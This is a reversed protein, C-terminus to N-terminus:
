KLQRRWRWIGAAAALALVGAVGAGGGGGGGADSRARVEVTRKAPASTNGSSDTAVYTVSYEGVVATDVPNDVVIAASLDGDVEDTAVAGPDQYAEGVTLTMRADGLLTVTPPHEDGRGLAGRGDNLFVEIGGTGAVIVDPRDDVSVRGIAAARAGPAVFQEAALLFVASSAGNNAYVQHGGSANIAVIDLDGDLDVDVALVALTAAAGLEAAPFFTPVAGGQNLLVANGLTATPDSSDRGLVLDPRGNADLDAVALSTAAGTPLRAASKYAGGANAYLAADGDGRAVVIEPLADGAFDALVIARADSADLTAHVAFSGAGTNRYVAVGGAGAIVADAAGDGDIDGVAVARSEVAEGGLPVATFTLDGGNLWLADATGAAHAVAVDLDGDGDVDALAVANAPQAPGIAIPMAALVSKAEHAPDPVALHVGVGGGGAVVVDEDGDGDVDGVATARVDAADIKQAAGSAIREALQLTVRAADNDENQDIPVPDAIAVEARAAVDGARTGTAPLTVTASAGGALPGLRCDLRAPNASSDLRCGAASPPEFAVPADAALEVALDVNGVDVTPAANRVTFTLTAPTGLPAPNPTVAAEVALDARDAGIVAITFPSRLAARGDSVELAIRYDRAEVGLPPVGALRGTVPDLALGPPLTEARFSLPEDEPDEFLPALELEFPLNETATQKPVPGGRPADNVPTVDITVVVTNSEATGDTVRAEVTLTGHFDDAPVVRTGNGALRFPADPAPPSLIVELEDAPDPDRANLRAPTIELPTDEDTRLRPPPTPITPPDNRGEVRLVFADAASGGENAATVTVTYTTIPGSSADDNDPTGAITGTTRDIALSPPLGAASFSLADGDPDSFFPSADFSYPSGETATQPDPAIEREVVPPRDPRIVRLTFSGSAAGTGDAATVTVAFPSAAIDADSPTGAITGTARDIALSAPLGSASFALPDGDPDDFFDGAALRYPSGATATQSDIPRELEPPRNARTIRLVFADSAALEGDSATVTVTFPSGDADPDRPTGAIQGTAGDLRLSAPLGAASFRLPDGDPDTFFRAVAFAYPSGVVADQPDPEIATAVLPAGNANAVQIAFTQMASLAGRSATLTVSHAGADTPGPIGSITRAGDFSLWAPLVPAAYRIPGGDDDDEDDDDNGGGRVVAEMLYTYREGEVAATPPASAFELSPPQADVRVAVLALVLWALRAASAGRSTRSTRDESEGKIAPRSTRIAKSGVLWLLIWAM